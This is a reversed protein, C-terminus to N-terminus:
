GGPRSRQAGAQRDQPRLRFNRPTTGTAQKFARHFASPQSYGLRFAIEGIPIRPDALLIEALKTRSQEVVTRFTLGQEALRRQLTRPGMGLVTASAALSPPEANEIRRSLDARLRDLLTGRRRQSALVHEAQGKLLSGLKLDAQALPLDLLSAPLVLETASAGFVLPAEFIRRHEAVDAPASHEFRVEVPRVPHLVADRAFRLLACLMQEHEHRRLEAPIDGRHWYTLTATGRIRRLEVGAADTWLPQFGCLNALAEGFSASNAAVYGLLGYMQPFTQEGVRLGFAGDRTLRAAEEYLRCLADLPIEEATHDLGAADLLRDRAVGRLAAFSLVKEAAEAPICAPKSV